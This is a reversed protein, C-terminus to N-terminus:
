TELQSKTSTKNRQPNIHVRRIESGGRIYARRCEAQFETHKAACIFPFFIVSSKAILAPITAKLPTVTVPDAFSLFSAIAYPTWTLLFLFATLFGTIAVGKQSSGGENAQHVNQNESSVRIQRHKVIWWMRYYTFCIVVVPAVYTFMFLCIIYSINSFTRLHWALSCSVGIGEISYSSWGVLPMISWFLGHLWCSTVFAISKLNVYKGIPRMDKLTQYREYGLYVLLSIITISCFCVWFAEFVCMNNGMTWEKKFSAIIVLIFVLAHLANAISLNIIILNVTNKKRRFIQCFIYTVFINFILSSIFLATMYYAIINFVYDPTRRKQIENAM